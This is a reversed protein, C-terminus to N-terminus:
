ALDDQHQHKRCEFSNVVKIEALVWINIMKSRLM